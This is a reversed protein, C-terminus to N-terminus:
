FFNGITFEFLIPKEDPRPSFPLGWEFRLPGLPSVWRIGFGWSTRLETVNVTCPDAAPDPTAAPAPSGCLADELNWANGGDTFIVGRIGVSELIPFEIELNYYFQMNGGIPVGGPQPFGNPDDTTTLSATPGLSYLPFGRVTYIGGLYYREFIPVGQPDSSTILGWETNLKLVLGGFLRHYFRAFVTDRVFINQSGLIKAAIETSASAYIGSTPFLRNDRSDWTLSLEVSSTLGNRYLNFLPSQQFVTVGQGGSGFLAGTSASIRVYEAKYQAFLRLRDDFVPHGLTLSAGTSDRDFASYQRITKYAEVATTWETGFLYPEVFRVQALQRIGSLQLQLALSQGRGFLNNQQVQATFIFSEISSFGAGVQFTGTPREAVEVNIVIENPASGDEESVDVHEFYGLATVRAKSEEVKSQSYLDGEVITLERRIVRDATKANGRINIREVHVLPGRRIAVIVDVKRGPSDINTQPRVEVHAYGRDRYYRTVAQLDSVIKTRSFWDGPNEGVMGRLRRRGGLPTIETGDSSLEQVALRGIRFRPGEDIPVTIDIYRRDPTLEIRPTGINVALYGRDYYLAQLRIVDDDFVSQKFTDNSSIFSFFGTQSTQMFGRLDSGSIHHNGTFAISRVTVEEGEHILYRVEVQGTSIQRLEYRVQALFYGKGAYLDRIKTVQEQVNPMSLIGGVHLTVKEAIDSDKVESNGVYVIRAISPREVVQIRLDVQDSGVPAAYIVIDQFFGMEWLAQADRAIESDTCPVGGHLQMTAIIDGSGVRRNGQVEIHRIRKGECLTHPVRVTPGSGADYPHGEEPTPAAGPGQGGGEGAGATAPAGGPPGEPAGGAAPVGADPALPPGGDPVGGDQAAASSALLLLAFAPAAFAASPRKM